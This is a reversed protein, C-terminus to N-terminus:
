LCAVQAKALMRNFSEAKQYWGKNIGAGNCVKDFIDKEMGGETAYVKNGATPGISRVELRSSTTRDILDAFYGLCIRGEDGV